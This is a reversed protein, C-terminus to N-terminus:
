EQANAQLQVVEATLTQRQGILAEIEHRQWGAYSSVAAWLVLLVGTTTGTALAMWRWSFWAAAGRLQREANGAAEVVGSLRDIVPQSATDLARAATEAAGELSSKVAQVVAVGVAAQLAPTARTAAADVAQASKEVKAAAGRADSAAAKIQEIQTKLDNLLIAIAQQQEQTLEVLVGLLSRADADEKGM